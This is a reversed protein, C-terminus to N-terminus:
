TITPFDLTVGARSCTAVCYVKAEREMATNVNAFIFDGVRLTEYALIFYDPWEVEAALDETTYLFTSNQGCTGVCVLDEPDAITTFM